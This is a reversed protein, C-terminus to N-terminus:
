RRQRYLAPDVAAVMAEHDLGGGLFMSVRTAEARPDSIVARYDVYLVDTDRRAALDAAISHLHKMFLLRLRAEDTSNAPKGRRTLMMGQSALVEDIDRRMFIIKYRHQPPLHKLLASVIKVAKGCAEAIWSADGALDKVREDEFYGLPNDDDASRREDSQVTVGGAQLMRMMM